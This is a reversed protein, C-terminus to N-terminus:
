GCMEIKANPLTPLASTRHYNDHCDEDKDDGECDDDDDGEDDDDDDEDADDDDNKMM